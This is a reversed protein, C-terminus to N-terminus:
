VKRGKRGKSPQKHAITPTDSHRQRDEEIEQMEIDKSMQEDHTQEPYDMIAEGM